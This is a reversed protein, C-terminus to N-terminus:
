GAYPTVICRNRGAEKAAYLNKDAVQLLDEPSVGQPISGLWAGGFSATVKLEGHDATPVSMAEVAARLREAIAALRECSANPVILVFEEGGYRCAVDRGRVQQELAKAVHRLVEDGAQHGYTDNFGKFKDVDSMILGIPADVAGSIRDSWHENVLDDFAARNRLGTLADTEAKTRLEEVRSQTQELERTAGVAMALMDEQAQMMMMAMDEPSGVDVDMVNAMSHVHETLGQLLDDFESVDMGYWQQAKERAAALAPGRSSESSVVTAIDHALNMLRTLEFADGGEEALSDPDHHHRVPEVLLAPLGWSELVAASVDAHTHGQLAAREAETDPHGADITPLVPVYADPGSQLIAAFGVDQLLGCLFAEDALGRKRNAVLQRAAVASTVSRRWFSAFDEERGLKGAAGGLAAGMSFSIAAMKVTKLGLVMLAQNINTVEQARGFLPSNSLKLLRGALAADRGVIEGIQELDVEDAQSLRVVELAAGPLSPLSEANVGFGLQVTGADTM